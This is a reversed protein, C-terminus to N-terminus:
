KTLCWPTQDSETRCVTAARRHRRLVGPQWSRLQGREVRLGCVGRALRELRDERCLRRFKSRLLNKGDPYLEAVFPGMTSRCSPISEATTPFDASATNGAIYLNGSSDLPSRWPTAPNPAAWWGPGCCRGKRRTNPPSAMATPGRTPQIRPRAPTTRREPCILSFTAGAVYANGASDIAIGNGVDAASGGLYTSYLLKSADPALKAVFAHGVAFSGFVQQLPVFKTQAANM